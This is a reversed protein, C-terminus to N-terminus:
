RGPEPPQRGHRTRGAPRTAAAECPRLAAVLHGTLTEHTRGETVLFGGTVDLWPDLPAPRAEGSPGRLLDWCGRAYAFVASGEGADLVLRYGRWGRFVADRARPRSGDAALAAAERNGAARAEAHAAVLRDCLGAVAAPVGPRFDDRYWGSGTMFERDPGDRFRLAHLVWRNAPGTLMLEAREGQGCRVGLVTGPGFPPIGPRAASIMVAAPAASAPLAEAAAALVGTVPDWGAVPGADTVVRGNPQLRM